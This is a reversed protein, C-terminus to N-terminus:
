FTLIIETEAFKVALRRGQSRLQRAAMAFHVNAASINAGAGVGASANQATEWLMPEAKIREARARLNWSKGRKKTTVTGGYPLSTELCQMMLFALKAEGRDIAEDVRWVLDVKGHRSIDDLIRRIERAGMQGGDTAAGFAVRFMAIRAMASDVSQSILALEASPPADAMALLEVGNGIAGIPNILDHCIRSGVLATLDLDDTPM